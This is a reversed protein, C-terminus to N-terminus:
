PRVGLFSLITPESGTKAFWRGVFEAKTACSRVEDSTQKLMKTIGRASGMAPRIRTGNLHLLGHSAGFTLATRTFPLLARAREGVRRQEIPHESVWVPLSTTVAVPLAERTSLPLVLALVVFAEAISLPDGDGSERGKAAHWLLMSCFAPNLLTKEERSRAAWAIM